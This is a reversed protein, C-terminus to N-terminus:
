VHLLVREPWSDLLSLYWKVDALGQYLLAAPTAVRGLEVGPPELLQYDVPNLGADEGLAVDAIQRFSHELLEVPQSM